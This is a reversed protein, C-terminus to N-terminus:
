EKVTMLSHKSEKESEARWIRWRKDMQRNENKFRCGVPGCHFTLFSNEKKNGWEMGNYLGCKGPLPWEAKNNEAAPRVPSPPGHCRDWWRSVAGICGTWGYRYAGQKGLDENDTQHGSTLTQEKVSETVVPYLWSHCMERDGCTQNPPCPSQISCVSLHKHPSTDDKNTM